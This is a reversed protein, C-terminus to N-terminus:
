RDISSRITKGISYGMNYAEQDTLSSLGSCSSLTLIALAVFTVFLTKLIGRKM